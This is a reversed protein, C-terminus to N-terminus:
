MVDIMGNRLGRNKHASDNRLLDKGFFGSDEVANM